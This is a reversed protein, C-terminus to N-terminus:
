QYGPTFLVQFSSLTLLASWFDCCLHEDDLAAENSILAFCEFLDKPFWNFAIVLGWFAFIGCLHAKTSVYRCTVVCVSMWWHSESGIKAEQHDWNLLVSVIINGRTSCMLICCCVMNNLPFLMLSVICLPHLQSLRQKLQMDWFVMSRNLVHCCQQSLTIGRDSCTLMEVVMM